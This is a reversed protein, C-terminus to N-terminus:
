YLVLHGGLVGSKSWHESIRPISDLLRVFFLSAEM